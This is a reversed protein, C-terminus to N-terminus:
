RHATFHKFAEEESLTNLIVAEPHEKKIRSRIRECYPVAYAQVKNGPTAFLTNKKLKSRMRRLTNHRALDAQFLEQIASLLTPAGPQAQATLSAQQLDEPKAGSVPTFTGPMDGQASFTGIVRGDFMVEAQHTTPNPQSLRGVALISMFLFELTFLLPASHIMTAMDIELGADHIWCPIGHM